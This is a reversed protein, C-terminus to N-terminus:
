AFGSQVNRAVPSFASFGTDVSRAVPGISADASSQAGRSFETSQPYYLELPSPPAELNDGGKLLGGWSGVSNRTPLERLLNPRKSAPQIKVTNQMIRLKHLKMIDDACPRQSQM